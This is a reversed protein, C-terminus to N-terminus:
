VSTLIGAHAWWVLGTALLGFLRSRGISAANMPIAVAALWFGIRAVIISWDCLLQQEPFALQPVVAAARLLYVVLLALAITTLAM